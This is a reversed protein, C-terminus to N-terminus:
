NRIKGVPMLYLPEENKPLHLVQKVLSDSFSGVTVTGMKLSIAQLCINQAAHGAEMHVYRKGREKYKGTTREYVATIVIVAASRNVSGQMSAAATLLPQKDGEAILELTNHLPLYHYVGPSLTNINGCVVYIELPYLAGASPATRGGDDSTIGQAAWLLQSIDKLELTDKKYRRISRRKMLAEEVSTESKLVPPPLQIVKQVMTNMQNNKKTKLQKCTLAPLFLVIGTVLLIKTWLASGM